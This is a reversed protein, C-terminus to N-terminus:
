QSLDTVARAFFQDVADSSSLQGFSVKQWVTGLFSNLDSFGNPPIIEQKVSYKTTLNKVFNLHVKQAATTNASNLQLDQLKAIPVVGNDSSYALSAATDNLFFNIFAAATGVNKCNAAITMGNAGIYDGAGAKGAPIKFLQFTAPASAHKGNYADTIAQIQNPAFQGFIAKGTTVPFTTLDTANIQATDQASVTVGAKRLNDWMDFWAKVTTKQVALAKNGYFTEGQGHVYAILDYLAAGDLQLAAVGAPAKKALATMYTVFDDWTWTETPAAVGTATLFTENYMLSRAFVGTPIMYQKGDAGKGIDLIAQPIGSVDIAGAAILDDLPLLAKTTSYTSLVTSQMQPVCVASQSSAAVTLKTFYSNYDGPQGAVKADPHAANWLDIVAQTKANRTPNAWWSYDVGGSIPPPTPKAPAVSGAASPAATAPAPTATAAATGCAAVLLAIAGLGLLRSATGGRSFGHAMFM